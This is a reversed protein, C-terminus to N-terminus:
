FKFKLWSFISITSIMIIGSDKTKCRERRIPIDFSERGERGKKNAFFRVFLEGYFQHTNGNTVLGLDGCFELVLYVFGFHLELTGREKKEEDDM